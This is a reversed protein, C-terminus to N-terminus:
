SSPSSSRGIISALEDACAATCLGCCRLLTDPCENLLLSLCGDGPKPGNSAEPGMLGVRGIDGGSPEGRRGMLGGRPDGCRTNGSDGLGPCKVVGVREGGFEGFDGSRCRGDGWEGLWDVPSLPPMLSNCTSVPSEVAEVPMTCNVLDGTTNFSPALESELPFNRGRACSTPRDSSSSLRCAKTLALRPPGTTAPPPRPRRPPRPRPMTNPADRGVGAAVAVAVM